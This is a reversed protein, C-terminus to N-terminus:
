IRAVRPLTLIIQTLFFVRQIDMMGNCHMSLLLTMKEFVAYIPKPHIVVKSRNLFEVFSVLGGDFKFDQSKDNIEDILRICIGKNLFALERLRGSLYEFSFETTETFITADPKFTTSTGTTETKGVFKIDSVPIGCQYEQVAVQGKARVEVRCYSSLANVVSAGVGHLGGSTKYVDNNFKGGAHLVTMVVELASKGSVHKEVPIGRANDAITASGDVHLRIEITNGHGALYEDISNDVLEYILHHLGVTSTNGIYMGPRKRVAQLGELVTINEAGYSQSAEPEQNDFYAHFKLLNFM